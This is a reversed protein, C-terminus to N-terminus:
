LLCSGRQCPAAFQSGAPCFAGALCTHKTSPQPCFYGAPCPAEVVSGESCFSGSHCPYLTDPSPCYSGAPCLVTVRIGVTTNGGSNVAMISVTWPDSGIRTPTGYLQGTGANLTVGEPLARAGGLAYSIM